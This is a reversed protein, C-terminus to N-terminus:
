HSMLVPLNAHKLVHRTTGGLVIERWRSHGYAGMVLMDAQKATAAELLVEGAGAPPTHSVIEVQVPLGHAELYELLLPIEEAARREDAESVVTGILVTDARQLFPLADSIARAAERSNNWGIFIRKFDFEARPVLFDDPLLLVPRGASLVVQNLLGPGTLYEGTGAGMVILDNVRANACIRGAPDGENVLWKMPVKGSASVRDFSEKARLQQSESVSKQSEILAPTIEPGYVSASAWLAWSDVFLANVSANLLGAVTAAGRLRREGAELHDVHVLIKKLPM